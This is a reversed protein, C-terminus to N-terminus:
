GLEALDLEGALLERVAAKVLTALEPTQAAPPADPDRARMRELVQTPMLHNVYIHTTALNRHGLAVMLEDLRGGQDVWTFAFTHRLGHPHVRKAIGAAAAATKLAERYGSPHMPMGRRDGQIQCFLPAKAGIGLRRRRELWRELLATTEVDLGVHRPHARGRRDRKPFRVYFSRQELDLDRLPAKITEGLRPGCNVMLATMAANRIGASGRRSFTALVAKVEPRTLPESKLKLGYNPPRKGANRGPM